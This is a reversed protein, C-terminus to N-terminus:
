SILPSFLNYKLAQSLHCLIGLIVTFLVKIRYHRCLAEIYHWRM